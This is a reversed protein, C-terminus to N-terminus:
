ALLACLVYFRGIDRIVQYMRLICLMYVRYLFMTFDKEGLSWYSYGRKFLM